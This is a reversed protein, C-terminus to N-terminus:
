LTRWTRAGVIPDCEPSLFVMFRRSMPRRLARRTVATRAAAPMAPAPVSPKTMTFPPAVTELAVDPVEDPLEDPLEVPLEDEPVEEEADVPEVPEVLTDDPDVVEEEFAVEV